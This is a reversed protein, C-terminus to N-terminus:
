PTISARAAAEAIKHDFEKKLGELTFGELKVAIATTYQHNGGMISRFWENQSEKDPPIFSEMGEVVYIALDTEIDSYYELDYLAFGFANKRMTDGVKRVIIKGIEGKICGIQASKFTVIDTMLKAHASNLSSAEHIIREAFAIAEATDLWFSVNTDYDRPNPPIHESTADFTSALEDEYAQMVTVPVVGDDLSVSFGLAPAQYTGIPEISELHVTIHRSRNNNLPKTFTYRNNM